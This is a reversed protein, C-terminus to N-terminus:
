VDRDSGKSLLGNISIISPKYRYEIAGMANWVTQVPPKKDDIKVKSDTVWWYNGCKKSLIRPTVPV